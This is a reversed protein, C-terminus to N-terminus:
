TSLDIGDRLSVSNVKLATLEEFLKHLGYATRGLRDLRWVVLTGVRGGRILDMVKNMAPRDMSRGTFTDTFFQVSERGEAWRALDGHQAAHDQGKSSVREYIAIVKNM